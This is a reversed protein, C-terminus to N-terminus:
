SLVLLRLNEGGNMFVPGAVKKTIFYNGYQIAVNYTEDVVHKQILILNQKM